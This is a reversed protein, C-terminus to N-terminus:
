DGRLSFHMFDKQRGALEGGWKWGTQRFARYVVSDQTVTGPQGPRWPGGRLLQCQPGFEFCETYLGNTEANIDIATGFSHNSFQTRLGNADVPGKSRGVRYGELSRIPFGSARITNLARRVGEAHDKCIYILPYGEIQMAEQDEECVTCNTQPAREEATVQYYPKTVRQRNVSQKTRTDWAWTSYTCTAAAHLAPASVRRASAPLLSLGAFAATAAIWIRKM